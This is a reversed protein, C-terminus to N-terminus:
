ESATKDRALKQYVSPTMGNVKKFSNIFTTPSNFGVERAIAQITLNAYEPDSLMRSAERIRHENLFTNFNKGFADKIVYSVYKSNSNVMDSLTNLSFSPSSIVAIDQMAMTIKDLITDYLEKSIPAATEARPATEALQEEPLAARSTAEALLRRTHNELNNLEENREVLLLRAQKLRLMNRRIVVISVALVLLVVMLSIITQWQWHIRYSLDSIHRDAEDREYQFHMNTAVMQQTRDFVSDSMKLSKLRYYEASDAVNRSKYIKSLLKWSDIQKQPNNLREALASARYAYELAAATDKQSLMASSIGIYQTVVKSTDGYEMAYDAAQRHYYAAESYKKDLMSILAQNYLYYFRNVKVDASAMKSQLAFYRRANPSDGLNCYTGVINILLETQVATDNHQRAEEYARLQYYISREYNEMFGYISGINGMTSYYLKDDGERKAMKMCEIFCELAQSYRQAKLYEVARDRMAQATAPRDARCPYITLVLITFLIIKVLRIM